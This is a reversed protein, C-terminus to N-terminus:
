GPVALLAQYAYFDDPRVGGGDGQQGDRHGRAAVAAHTAGVYPLRRLRHRAFERVVFCGLRRRLLAVFIGRAEERSRCGLERWRQSAHGDAALSLLSHVDTSAEGYQGFVLGRVRTFSRLRDLIPTTGAPSHRRDLERAHQTYDQDVEWARQAVGGSQEDRARPSLYVGSGGHSMKVDFLLVRQPLAAGAHQGRRPVAPLSVFMAADPVIAPPRRSRLLVSPHILTSFIHRPGLDVRLGGSTCIEFLESGCADHCETHTNGPLVALGLELGYADCVRGPAATQSCPVHLGRVAYPRVAPSETGFYTTAVERFEEATMEFSHTPRATVWQSSLRDCVMFAQRLHSRQPLAILRLELADCEAQEVQATIACQIHRSDGRIAGAQTAHADLPGHVAGVRQQLRGWAAGFSAATPRLRSLFHTFRPGGERFPDPDAGFLSHLQPIPASSYMGKAAHILGSVFAVDRLLNARSRVGGGRM